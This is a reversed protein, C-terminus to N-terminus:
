DSFVEPFHEVLLNKMESDNEAAMVAMIIDPRDEYDLQIRALKKKTPADFDYNDPFDPCMSKAIKRQFGGKPSATVVVAAARSPKAAATKAAAKPAKPKATNTNRFVIGESEIVTEENSIDAGGGLDTISYDPDVGDKSGALSNIKSLYEAKQEPDMQALMESRTRGVGAVVKVNDAKRIAESFSQKEANVTQKAPTSITRVQVTHGPEVMAVRSNRDRTAKAHDRFDGVVQDEAAVTTIATRSQANMPNGGDAPRIQINASKRSVVLGPDYDGSPVVWEAAVAGRFKPLAHEDGDIKLISGDFEMEDGKNIKLGLDGLRFEQQAIFPQFVGKRFQIQTSM